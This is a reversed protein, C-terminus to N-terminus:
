DGIGVTYSAPFAQTGVQVTLFCFNRGGGSFMFVEPLSLSFLRKINEAVLLSFLDNALSSYCLYEAV